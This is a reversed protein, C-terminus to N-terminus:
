PTYREPPKRIRTSRRLVPEPEELLNEESGEESSGEDSSTNPNSEGRLLGPAWFQPIVAPSWKSTEEEKDEEEEEEMVREEKKRRLPTEAEEPDEEVKGHFAKLRNVHVIQNQRTGVKRLEYTVPGIRTMIRYPGIWPKSLKKSTGIKTAMNKLYVLDGLEFAREESKKNFEKIRKEKTKETNNYVESYVRHMRAMFESVYNEDYDYKLRQSRIFSDMPLVQDRGHLLFYPSYGTSSHISGRYAMLVFPIWNDWDRQSECIYQSLMDKFVRHMREIQKNSTPAYSSTQIKEINLVECVEKFLNSMFNAGRDTLLRKPTGHRVIIHEVFIRAITEAKRDPIPIAEPYKTFYDQFTLLYRNGNMSTVLPGVIDMSTLEWPERTPTFHQLPAKKQHASTKRRNCADCRTCYNIIDTRMGIWYFRKRINWLTKQQGQHGALPSDHFDELVKKVYIKPVILKDANDEIRYLIGDKSLYYVDDMREETQGLQEKIAKCFPDQSQAKKLLERDWEPEIIEEEIRLIAGSEKPLTYIFVEIDTNYFIFEIMAQIKEWNLGDLGCAIKPMALKKDQNDECTKKLNRLANWVTRYSPKDHYKFKTILYYVNREPLKLEAVEGVMKKQELLVNVSGFSERFQVAIGQGMAFDQSVCHALACSEPASFLDGQKLILNKTKLPQHVTLYEEYEEFEIDFYHDDKAYMRSLADANGHLRGRRHIIEFDYEALTLAWRTLRSGPDNMSLLWKLPRHDSIVTFKRGYLYCRFTQIGFIVGLLEKETTSYNLEAKKFKRSAYAVPKEYGDRMQSLIAGVGLGSADTSVIFSQEFDPFILVSEATLSQKLKDIAELVELSIEFKVDKKTLNVLPASIEAVNPIFRRYWNVLGMFARVGRVNRPIPFKKIAEIKEPDPLVGEQTIMHGLYKVKKLLFNCKKPKLKINVERLKEFVQAIKALHDEEGEANFIIIDDLYVMCSQGTLGSLTMNMFRQFTSPANVLGFPMKSYEYHGQFTSFGTLPIDKEEMDIQHYAEAVDIVSFLVKNGSSYGQILDSINKINNWNLDIFKSEDDQVKKITEDPDTMNPPDMPYIKQKSAKTIGDWGLGLPQGKNLLSAHYQDQNMMSHFGLIAALDIIEDQTATSLAQEYEDGLDVAIQEEAEQERVPPPPPIWKKGRVTGPVYPKIEPIDPTEIAEKNIHDILKKRNLPGTPDKECEYSNRQSPPLFTDDPDVEKALVSIEEATLKNLLEDVDIDDYVSLDKGYLKAPTTMTTTTTKTSTEEINLKTRVIKRRVETEYSEEITEAM